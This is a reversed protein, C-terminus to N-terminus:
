LFAVFIDKLKFFPKVKPPQNGEIIGSKPFLVTSEEFDYGM